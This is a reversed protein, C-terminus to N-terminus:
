NTPLGILPDIFDNTVLYEPRLGPELPKNQATFIPVVVDLVQQVRDFDFDGLARDPGNGVLGLERMTKVGQEALGRSYV